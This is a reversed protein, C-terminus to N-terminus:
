AAPSSRRRPQVLTLGAEHRQRVVVHCTSLPRHELVHVRHVIGHHEECLPVVDDARERGLVSYDPHHLDSGTRGCVHCNRYPTAVMMSFHQWHASRLYDSYTALSLARLRGGLVVRQSKSLTSSPDGLRHAQQRGKRPPETRTRTATSARVRGSTVAAAKSVRVIHHGSSPM